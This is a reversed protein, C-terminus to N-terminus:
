KASETKLYPVHQSNKLRVRMYAECIILFMLWVSNELMDKSKQM